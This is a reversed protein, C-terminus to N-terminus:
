INFLPPSYPTEPFPDPLGYCPAGLQFIFPCLFAMSNHWELVKCKITYFVHCLSSYSPHVSWEKNSCWGDKKKKKKKLSQDLQTKNGFLCLYLSPQQPLQGPVGKKTLLEVLKQVLWRSYIMTPKFMVHIVDSIVLM